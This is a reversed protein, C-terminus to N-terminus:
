DQESTLELSSPTTSVSATVAETATLSLIKNVRVGPVTFDQPIKEIPYPTAAAFESESTLLVQAVSLPVQLFLHSILFALGAGLLGLFHWRPALPAVTAAVPAVRYIQWLVWLLFVAAAITIVRNTKTKFLSLLRRQEQTLQEPKLAFILISFIDFPRTLQMWLIPVLGIAAVLFLEVWVPLIPDGVALGLWVLELALPFAALGALHIWLFPETWFSRM